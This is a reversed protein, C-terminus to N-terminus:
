ERGGFANGEGRRVLQQDAVDEVRPRVLGPRVHQLLVKDELAADVLGGRELDDVIAGREEPLLLGHDLDLRRDCTYVLPYQISLANTAVESYSM